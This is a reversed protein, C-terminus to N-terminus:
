YPNGLKNTLNIFLPKPILQFLISPVISEEQNERM